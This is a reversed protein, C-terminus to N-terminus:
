DILQLERARAIAATRCNVDLKAFANRLHWKTTCLAICSAESIAKNCYGKSVLKLIDIERVTLPELPPAPRAITSSSFHMPRDGPAPAAPQKIYSTPPPGLLRGASSAAAILEPLAPVDDFVARGFGLSRTTELCRNLGDFAEEVRAARWHCVAQALELPMQRYVHGARQASDRLVQLLAQCEGQRQAHMWLLAQAFGRRGWPEEYERASKWDGRTAHQALGFEKGTADARELEGQLLHLRVKEFCLQALFSPHSGDEVVSHAYDLLQFAEEHRGQISKLRALVTYATVFNEVTSVASIFPLLEVLLGQAEALRNREYRSCALAIAANVWAPSRPAGKVAAFIRECVEGAAKFRGQARDAQCVLTEGYSMVYVNNAQQGVDRGRLALRRAADFQNRRLLRSAQATMLIGTYFADPSGGTPVDVDFTLPEDSTDARMVMTLLKLRFQQAEQEERSGALGVRASHARAQRLMEGASAFRRSLILSLTYACSLGNDSLIEAPTLEEAWRRIELMEGNEMWSRACRSTLEVCWARDGAAFAHVLAEETMQHEAFWHSAKKHLAPIRQPQERALSSRLFDLFLLHYRYWHRHNDLPQVFLQSQELQELLDDSHTVGLLANCLDGNMKDVVASVLMFERLEAPQDHLVAGALYRVVDQHSGSFRQLADSLHTPDDASLLALKAGAVWGETCGHIHEADAAALKRGHLKLSLEAIGAVGLNLDLTGLRTLQDQLKLQSLPLNPMRRSSIVWRVHAPSHQLIERFAHLVTEGSLWQFDDLVIALDAEIRGLSELFVATVHALPLEGEDGLPGTVYAEFEPVATRVAAVLYSFFSRPDNDHPDLSLWAVPRQTSARAHWQSLLTTKGSGIQAVLLLLKKQAAEDIAGLLTNREILASALQPPRLKAHILHARPLLAPASELRPSPLESAHVPRNM